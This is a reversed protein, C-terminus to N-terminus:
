SPRQDSIITEYLTRCSHGWSGRTGDPKPDAKRGVSARELGINRLCRGQGGDLAQTGLTLGQSGDGVRQVRSADGCACTRRPPKFVDPIQHACSPNRSIVPRDYGKVRKPRITV